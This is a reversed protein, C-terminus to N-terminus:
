EDEFPLGVYNEAITTQAARSNLVYDLEALQIERDFPTQEPPRHLLTTMYTSYRVVKWVRKLCTDSYRDLRGANGGRFFEILARALVRVDAVALNLGKAGTPPVIHCADGALFLRGHRMPAAVFSRCPTIGKQFIRGEKLETRATYGLRIHLEDWIRADPWNAVDDDLSCQVYLRSVHPSRRSALAFGRDHNVYTMEPLPPSESMIGLWGFPFERDYITLLDAPIASRCVGHFGDCGAVIDCALTEDKGQHKFRIVPQNGAVDDIGTAEAEFLVRVGRALNAAILDKVVEQQGYIHVLKDGSLGPLDLHILKGSFRIDLAEDIMCERRLRADVGLDAMLDVTGQELVGARVRSEVYDRSRAELVVCDIGARQLLLALFLGAPGAGVIGVQTRM